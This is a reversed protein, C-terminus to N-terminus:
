FRYGIGLGIVKNKIDEDKVVDNLGMEYRLDFFLEGKTFVRAVEGGFVMGWDSNNSEEEYNTVITQGSEKVESEAKRLYSYYPGSYFSVMWKETLGLEETFRGKLLLPINYYDYSNNIDKKSGSENQEYALGKRKYNLETQLSITKHFRYDFTAGLTFGTKMDNNDWLMGLESQTSLNLGEKIGFKIQSKATFTLLILLIMLIHKSTKM